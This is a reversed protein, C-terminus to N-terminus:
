HAGPPHSVNSSSPRRVGGSDRRTGPVVFMGLGDARTLGGFSGSGTSSRSRAASVAWCASPFSWAADATPWPFDFFAPGFSGVGTAGGTIDADESANSDLGSAMVCGIGATDRGAFPSM